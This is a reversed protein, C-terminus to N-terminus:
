FCTRGFNISGTNLSAYEPGLTVPQMREAASMGVAGGTTVQIVAQCGAARIAEINEQFVRREQTPHGAADRVHLHIIAAGENGANLAERAVEEPTVPLPPFDTKNIEAGQIAATIILKNM